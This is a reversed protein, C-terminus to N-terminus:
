EDPLQKPIDIGNDKLIKELEEVRKILRKIQKRYKTNLESLYQNKAAKSAIERKVYEIKKELKKTYPTIYELKDELKRYSEIIFKMQVEYPLDDQPPRHKIRDM